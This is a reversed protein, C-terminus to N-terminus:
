LLKKAAKAALVEEHEKEVKSPDLEAWLPDEDVPAPSASRLRRVADAVSDSSAPLSVAPKTIETEKSLPSQSDKPTASITAATTTAVLPLMEVVQRKSRAAVFKQVMGLSIVVGRSKLLEVIERYPKRDKRWQHIENHFPVLRSNWAGGPRRDPPLNGLVPHGMASKTGHTEKGIFVGTQIDKM